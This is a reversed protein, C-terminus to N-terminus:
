LIFNILFNELEQNKKIKWTGGVEGLWINNQPDEKWFVEVKIRDEKDFDM